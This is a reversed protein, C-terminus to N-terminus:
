FEFNFLENMCSKVRKGISGGINSILTALDTYPVENILDYSFSTFYISFSTLSKRLEQNDLITRNTLSSSLAENKSIHDTNFWNIENLTTSYVFDNKYCELPCMPLCVESFFNESSFKEVVAKFCSDSQEDCMKVNFVKAFLYNRACNCEKSLIKEECLEFCELQTYEKNENQFINYLESENPDGINQIECQSFPKAAQKQFIRKIGLETILGPMLMKRKPRFGFSTANHIDVFLNSNQRLARLRVDISTYLILYLGKLPGIQFNISKPKYTFCNGFDPDFSFSFDRTINCAHGSFDCGLVIDEISYGLKKKNEEPFDPRNVEAKAQTLLRDIMRTKESYNLSGMLVDDFVNTLNNLRSFNLLFDHAYDTQFMSQSRCFTVSPFLVKNEHYSRIKTVVEYDFFDNISQLVLNVCVITSALTFLLWVLFQFRNKARVINPLGHFTTSCLTERTLKFFKNKRNEDM